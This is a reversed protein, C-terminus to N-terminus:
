LISTQTRQPFMVARVFRILTLRYHECLRFEYRWVLLAASGDDRVAVGLLLRETAELIPGLLIAVEGDVVLELRDM